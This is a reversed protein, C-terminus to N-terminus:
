LFAKYEDRISDELLTRLDDPLPKAWPPAQLHKWMDSVEAGDSLPRPKLSPHLPLMVGAKSQEAATRDDPGPGAGLLSHPLGLSAWHTSPLGLAALRLKRERAEPPQRAAPEWCVPQALRPGGRWGQHMLKSNWLLLGGAPVPVRRAQTQWGAALRMAEERNALSDLMTFHTGRKGARQVKDDAMMSKWVTAHSGPWVITTSAHEGTSPWIYMVGQFCEWDRLGRGEGDQFREDHGNQDVHPFVSNSVQKKHTAPAFFSNDCSSVLEDTGHLAAYVERVRPLLRAEWAFRGHPLGRSQCREMPGLLKVSPLPWQRADASAAAAAAVFVEGAAQTANADVLEGLDEAFLRELRSIDDASAVDMVVAVGNAELTARLKSSIDAFPVMFPAVEEASMVPVRLRAFKGLKVQQTSEPKQAAVPAAAKRAPSRAANAKPKAPTVAEAKAGAAKARGRARAPTTVAKGAAATKAAPARTPSAAPVGERIRKM